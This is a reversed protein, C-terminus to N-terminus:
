CWWWRSSRGLYIARRFRRYAAPDVALAVLLAVGGAAAYVGQRTLYYDPRGPIDYRTIGAIAYLGYAVLAIVGGLLLRDLGLLHDRLRAGIGEAGGSRARLYGAQVDEM